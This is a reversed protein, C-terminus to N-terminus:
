DDEIPRGEVTDSTLGDSAARALINIPVPKIPPRPAFFSFEELESGCHESVLTTILSSCYRGQCRGMGARTERKIAGATCAGDNLSDQIASLPVEECRCILTDHRAFQVHISPAAFLTWLAKQFRRHSVLRRRRIELEKVFRSRLNGRLVKAASIGAIHGEEIAAKAGGLGGCDGVIFIGEVSSQCNNDKIATLNGFKSDFSHRCGLARSIENSSLFGYGVCVADVDFDRRSGEVVTGEQTIQAVAVSEVAGHGKAEIVVHNFLIPVGSRRLRLLYALGDLILGPSRICASFIAPIKSICMSSAVEAVGVVEVGAAALEAAVQLNLPGNGAVLVKKGPGVRYSRLLTQAAGTTMFGPLTWGPIPIGKEYAGTAIILQSPHFILSKGKVVVTLEMPRFAGWILAGGYVQVGLNEVESILSRGDKYQRDVHKADDYVHDKLLQKFYQGGLSPREDVLSVECGALAAAKAASLGAPGGGLVLVEPKLIASEAELEAGIKSSNNGLKQVPDKQSNVSMGAKVTTMCANQNNSGDIEVRCDTCIGMGCFIGRELGSRTTRFSKIGNAALCAALSEGEYGRIPLGDFNLDVPQSTTRIFKNFLRM